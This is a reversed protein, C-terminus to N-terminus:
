ATGKGARSANGAEPLAFYFTSGEGVKSEVWIRGGHLEVIRKSISLGLGSGKERSQGTYFEDFVMGLDEASIGCGTDSIVITHENDGKRIDVTIKGDSSTFKLANSLLNILVQEIKKRDVVAKTATGDYAAVVNIGKEDMARSMFKLVRDVVKVLDWQRLNLSLKGSEIVSLDLIDEITKSLGTSSELAMKLFDTAKPSLPGAAGELVMQLYGNIVGLPSRLEHAAMALFNSKLRDLELLRSNAEELKHKQEELGEYLFANKIANAASGAIMRGIDAERKTFKGRKKSARLLLTGIVEDRFIVPVVMLSQYSLRAEVEAMLPNTHVDDIILTERTEMVRIIEPYKDLYICLGGIDPSDSSAMVLGHGKDEDVLIVSCRELHLYEAIKNTVTYLVKLINLTSTTERTVDLMIEQDRRLQELNDFLAKTRLNVRIRTRLAEVDFPKEIYDDAGADFGMVMGGHGGYATIMIIPIARTAPDNKIIETVEIGNIGPIMLDMIILEPMEKRAIEIADKGNDATIIKHDPSLTEKILELLVPSDDVALIKPM